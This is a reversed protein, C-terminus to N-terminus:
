GRIAGVPVDLELSLALHDSFAAPLARAREGAPALGDGLLIHDIARQPRWSPFTPVVHAPPQLRTRRFLTAMEPRDIDCNFDGMLVAYPHDHLLEAIFSLQSARSQAGLSLHAVAITLSDEDDGFRAMLVGRGAIRGPLSHDMVEVPELKSLLGNASSAVGGVRRNPQHSWYHFGARQALYHTQNTFGSRLSGPDSENLGVIDHEGVVKAIADLSLRKGMPLVHSWSRTAYDSYRRTSSGAQINASLLKLRRHGTAKDM